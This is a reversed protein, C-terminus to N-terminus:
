FITRFINFIMFPKCSNIPNIKELFTDFCWMQRFCIFIMIFLIIFFRHCMRCGLKIRSFKVTELLYAGKEQINDTNISRSSQFFIKNKISIIESRNLDVIILDIRSYQLCVLRLPYEFDILRNM